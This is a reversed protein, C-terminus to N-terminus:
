HFIFYIHLSSIPNGASPTSSISKKWYLLESRIRMFDGNTLFPTWKSGHNHTISLWWTISENWSGWWVNDVLPASVNLWFTMLHSLRLWCPIGHHLISLSFSFLVTDKRGKFSAWRIRDGMVGNRDGWSKFLLYLPCIGSELFIDNFYLIASLHSILLSCTQSPHTVTVSDM